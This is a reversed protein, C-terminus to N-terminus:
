HSYSKNDYTSQNVNKTLAIVTLRLLGLNLYYAYSFWFFPKKRHHLPKSRKANSYGTVDSGAVSVTVHHLM